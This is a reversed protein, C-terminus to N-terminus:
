GLDRRLILAKAPKGDPMPYYGPRTGVETFRRSRYLALAPANGEDVELFLRAVGYRSLHRM